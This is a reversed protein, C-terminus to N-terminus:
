KIRQWSEIFQSIILLLEKESQTGEDSASKKAHSYPCREQRETRLHVLGVCDVIWIGGWDLLSSPLEREWSTSPVGVIRVLRHGPDEVATGPVFPALFFPGWYAIPIAAAVTVAADQDPSRRWLLWLAVSSLMTTMGVSVAGHFRAHPSWQPSFLHSDNWDALFPVVATLIAALSILIKGINPRMVKKRRQSEVHTTKLDQSMLLM